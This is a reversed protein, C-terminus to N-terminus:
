IGIIVSDYVNGFFIVSVVIVTNENDNLYRNLSITVFISVEPFRDSVLIIIDLIVSVNNILDLSFVRIFYIYIYSEYLFAAM